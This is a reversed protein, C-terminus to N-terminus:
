NMRDLWEEYQANSIPDVYEIQQIPEVKVLKGDEEKKYTRKVLQSLFPGGFERAETATKYYAEEREEESDYLDNTEYERKIQELSKEIPISSCAKFSKVINEAEIDTIIKGDERLYKFMRRTKDTCIVGIEGRENTAIKNVFFNALAKQGNRVVTSNILLCKEDMRKKELLPFTLLKNYQNNTTTTDKLAAKQITELLHEKDDLKGKLFAIEEKLSSLKEQLEKNLKQSDNYKKTLCSDHHFKLLESTEMKKGCICTYKYTEERIKICYVATRQHKDLSRKLTFESSCYQCIHVRQSM